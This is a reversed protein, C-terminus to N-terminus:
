CYTFLSFLVPHNVSIVINDEFAFTIKRSWGTDLDTTFFIAYNKTRM